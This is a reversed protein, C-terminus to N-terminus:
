GKKVMRLSQLLLQVAAVMLILYGAALVLYFPFQPIELVSTLSELKRAFLAESISQVGIVAGVVVALAFNASDFVVQARRSLRGVILDVKIHGVNVACWAIALASLCVMMLEVLENAGVIPRAFLYRSFVDVVTLMMMSVLIVCATLGSKELIQKIIGARFRSQPDSM